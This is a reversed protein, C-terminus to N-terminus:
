KAELKKVREDLSDIRSRGGSTFVEKKLKELLEKDEKSLEDGLEQRAKATFMRADAPTGIFEYHMADKRGRYRGGWRFGYSEWLKPMWSPMDTILRSSMPNKPANLDVALGWSHNSPSSSGRISRCAFGWCWGPRLDYGRTETEDCLRAILEAIEKHVPLKLGDRRTVTVINRSQCNPWGPGWGRSQATM